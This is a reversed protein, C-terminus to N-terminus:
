IQKIVNQWNVTVPRKLRVGLLRTFKLGPHFQDLPQDHSKEHEIIQGDSTKLCSALIQVIKQRFVPDHNAPIHWKSFTNFEKLVNTQQITSSHCAISHTTEPLKKGM